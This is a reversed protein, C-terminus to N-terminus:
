RCCAGREINKHTDLYEQATPALPKSLCSVKDKKLISSLALFRTPFPSLRALLFTAASMTPYVPAPPLQRQPSSPNSITLDLFIRKEFHKHQAHQSSWYPQGGCTRQKLISTSRMSVVGIRSGGVQEKGRNRLEM